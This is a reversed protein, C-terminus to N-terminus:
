PAELLRKALIECCRGKETSFLQMAHKDRESPEDCDITVTVHELQRRQLRRFGTVWLDPGSGICWRPKLKAHVELTLCLHLTHLYLLKSSSTEPDDLKPDNFIRTWVIADWYTTLNVDLHVVRLSQFQDPLLRRRLEKFVYGNAILFTNEAFPVLRAEAFMQKCVLLLSLDPKGALQHTWQEAFDFYEKDGATFRLCIASDAEEEPCRIRRPREGERHPLRATALKLDSYTWSVCILHDGFVYGYIQDRLEQPLRLFACM